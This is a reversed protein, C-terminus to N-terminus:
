GPSRWQGILQILEASLAAGSHAAGFAPPTQDAGYAHVAVAVPQGDADLTWVPGGSEGEDTEVAYYLRGADLGQIAGQGSM